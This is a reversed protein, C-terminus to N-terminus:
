QWITGVTERERERLLEDDCMECLLDGCVGREREGMVGWVWVCYDLLWKRNWNKEDFYVKVQLIRIQNDGVRWGELVTRGDDNIIIKINEILKKTDINTLPWNGTYISPSNFLEFTKVQPKDLCFDCTHQHACKQEGLMQGGRWNRWYYELLIM